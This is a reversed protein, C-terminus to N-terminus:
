SRESESTASEDVSAGRAGSATSSRRRSTEPRPPLEDGPRGDGDAVLADVQAVVDDRILPLQLAGGARSRGEPESLPAPHAPAPPGGGLQDRHRVNAVHAM